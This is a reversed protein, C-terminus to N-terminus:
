GSFRGESTWVTCLRKEVSGFCIFVEQSPKPMKSFLIIGILNFRIDPFLPDSVHPSVDGRPHTHTRM